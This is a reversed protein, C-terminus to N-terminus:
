RLEAGFRERFIRQGKPTIAVARTGEVRRIWGKGFSHTCIAAGVVGALHPRRESWDLCPRCLPRKSARGKTAMLADVDLGIDDLFVMGRKTVLGADSTIEAYGNTVLGDALAVGLQGALHDYCTRAARLAADRPGVTLTKRSPALDAAVQMISELMHAVSPAALRHYRHRGQKEVSVLGLTTMRNLHGSATQPAIGAMRALETATLARGDMLAQLMSARAPDGSIAAVEAFKANTSM